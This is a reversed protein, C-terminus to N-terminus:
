INLHKRFIEKGGMSVGNRLSPIISTSHHRQEIM